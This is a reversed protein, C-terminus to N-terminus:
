ANPHTGPPDRRRVDTGPPDHHRETYPAPTQRPQPKGTALATYLGEQMAAVVLMNAVDEELQDAGPDFAALWPYRARLARYARMALFGAVPGILSALAADFGYRILLGTVAVAVGGAIGGDRASKLTSNM